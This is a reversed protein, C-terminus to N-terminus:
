VYDLEETDLEIMSISVRCFGEYIKMRKFSGVDKVKKIILDRISDKFFMIEGKKNTTKFYRGIYKSKLYLTTTLPIEWMESGM